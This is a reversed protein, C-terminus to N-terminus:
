GAGHSWGQSVCAVIDTPDKDPFTRTTAKAKASTESLSEAKPTRPSKVKQTAKGQMLVVGLITATERM